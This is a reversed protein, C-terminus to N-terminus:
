ILAVSRIMSLPKVRTKLKLKRTNNKETILKTKNNNKKINIEM